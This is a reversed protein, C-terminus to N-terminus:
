CERSVYELVRHTNLSNSTLWDSFKFFSSFFSLFVLYHPLYGNITVETTIANILFTISTKEEMEKELARGKVLQFSCKDRKRNQISNQIIWRSNLLSILIIKKRWSFLLCKKNGPIIYIIKSCLGFISFFLGVRIM